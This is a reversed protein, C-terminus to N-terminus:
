RMVGEMEKMEETKDLGMLARLEHLLNWVDTPLAVSSAGGYGLIQTEELLAYAREAIPGRPDSRIAAELHRESLNVWFGDLSRAEVIGLWYYALAADHREKTTRNRTSELRSARDLELWEVLQSAAALDQVLGDRGYPGNSITGAEEALAVGYELSPAAKGGFKEKDLEALAARWEGVRRSLYFPLDKRDRLIALTKAVRPVARRVRIAVNLYDVLVGSADLHTTSSAPDRILEEWLDLAEDFRRVTVLLWARDRRSLKTLEAKEVFEDALPFSRDSPLRTHCAVCTQLTGTLFFRAEEYEGRLYREHTERVDGALNLALESFGAARNRGHHELAVILRELRDLSSLVETRVAPDSWRSQDLSLPILEKMEEFVARMTPRPSEIAEADDSAFGAGSLTLFLWSAILGIMIRNAHKMDTHKGWKIQIRIVCSRHGSGLGSIRSSLAFDDKRILRLTV